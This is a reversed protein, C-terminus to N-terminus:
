KRLLVMGEILLESHLEPSFADDYHDVISWAWDPLADPPLGLGMNLNARTQDHFVASCAHLPLIEVSAYGCRRAAEIFFSKTFIWKDDMKAFQAPDQRVRMRLRFDGVIAKLLGLVDDRIPLTAAKEIIAEYALMLVANGNEFPEFFMAVAGPKLAGHVAALAAVPDILHHLIAAGVALDYSNAAYYNTCADLCVAHLREAYASKSLAYQRLIALLNPSLDTAIVTAQPFRDLMPFVSNGSGSGIDLVVPAAHAYALHDLAKDILARFYATNTFRQHYGEANDLFSETIGIRPRGIEPAPVFIGAFRADLATAGDVLSSTFM